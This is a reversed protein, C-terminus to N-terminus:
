SIATTTSLFTQSLAMLVSCEVASGQYVGTWSFPCMHQHCPWMSSTLRTKLILSPLRCLICGHQYFMVLVVYQLSVTLPVQQLGNFCCTKVSHMCQMGDRECLVQSCCCGVQKCFPLQTVVISVKNRCLDAANDPLLSDLWQEIVTAWMGMLGLPREWINHELSMKYATDLVLKPDVGCTAIISALAGGSAGVMPVKTLDFHQMLYQVAGLQWWFYIGSGAWSLALKPKM